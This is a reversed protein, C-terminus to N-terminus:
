ILLDIAAAVLRTRPDIRYVYGDSYRYWAEDSDAYRDRFSYPVNYIDYGAPMAEGIVFDDGALLAAVSGIPANGPEVRYIVNDAFRYSQASGLDFYDVYYDPM